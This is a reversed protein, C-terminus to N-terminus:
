DSLGMGLKMNLCGYSNQLHFLKLPWVFFLSLQIPLSYQFYFYVLFYAILSIDFVDHSSGILFLLWCTFSCSDFIVWHSLPFCYAAQSLASIIPYVWLMFYMHIIDSCKELTWIHVSARYHFNQCFPM